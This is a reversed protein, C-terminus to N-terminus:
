FHIFLNKKMLDRSVKVTDIGNVALDTKVTITFKDAYDPLIRGLLGRVAAEQESETAYSKVVDM